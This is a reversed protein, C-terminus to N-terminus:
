NFIDIFSCIRKLVENGTNVPVDKKANSLKATLNVIINGSTGAYPNLMKMSAIM